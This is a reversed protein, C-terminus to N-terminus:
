HLWPQLLQEIERCGRPTVARDRVRNGSVVVLTPVADVRFRQVLQPHEEVEVRYVRFSHHNGRRQLVEVPQRAGLVYRREDIDVDTPARGRDELWAEVISLIRGIAQDPSKAIEVCVQQRDPEFRVQEADVEQVLLRVLEGAAEADLVTM